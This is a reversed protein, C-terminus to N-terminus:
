KTLTLKNPASGASVKWGARSAAWSVAQKSYATVLTAAAKEAEIPAYTQSGRVQTKIGVGKTWTWTHRGNYAEIREATKSYITMKEARMAAEVLDPMANALKASLAQTTISDCPM